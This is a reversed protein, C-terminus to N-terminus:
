EKTEHEMETYLDINEFVARLELIHLYEGMVQQQNRLLEIPCDHRPMDVVAISNDEYHAHKSQMSAELKTNFAKLKEYRIKVQWYEAIFREKYDFSTMFDKTDNLNVM